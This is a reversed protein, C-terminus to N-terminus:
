KGTLYWPLEVPPYPKRGRIAQLSAVARELEDLNVLGGNQESNWSLLVLPSDQHDSKSVSLTVYGAEDWSDERDMLVLEIKTPIM